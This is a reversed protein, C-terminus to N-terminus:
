QAVSVAQGPRLRENGRVVVTDGASLGDGQVLVEDATSALVTVVVPQATSEDVRFVRQDVAGRVVADRPVMVGGSAAVDFVVDVQTGPIWSADGSPAIRIPATRSVPDLAQVVGVVVGKGGDVSVADGVSVRRALDLPADVRLEVADTRVLDVVRTGPTVWDGADVYRETVVAPFPATVRHRALQASALEARASAGDVSARLSTVLAQAAEVESAALVGSDVRLTREAVREAQALEAQLRRMEARAALVEATALADDVLVIVQGREVADGERLSVRKVEGSAGSALEARELARVDAPISWQSDLEGARVSALQVTAPPPGGGAPAVDPESCAILLALFLM